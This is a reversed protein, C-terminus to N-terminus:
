IGRIFRLNEIVVHREVATCDFTCHNVCFMCRVRVSGLAGPAQEIAQCGFCAHIYGTNCLLVHTLIYLEQCHAITCIYSSCEEYIKSPM